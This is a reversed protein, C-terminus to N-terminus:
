FFKKIKKYAQMRHDIKAKEFRSIEGFTMSEGKPIFIPDYGFGFKGKKLASIRGEIKGLSTVFKGNPWYITLACVFRAKINKKKWHKDKLNLKKFVKKIASNFDNNKGAWRASYIGPEKNLLSIQLGSDDALCILKTKKSFYRAKLLSNGKFTKRNETPSNIKYKKVSQIKVSKPLLQMFEDIKGQNNSGILLNTIKKNQM